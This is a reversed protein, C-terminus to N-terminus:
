HGIMAAKLKVARDLNHKADIFDPNIQVARRLHEIAEELRGQSALVNALNYHAEPYNPLSDSPGAGRPEPFQVM